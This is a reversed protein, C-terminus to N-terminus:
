LKEREPNTTASKQRIGETMLTETTVPKGKGDLAFPVGHDRLWIRLKSDHGIALKTKLEANSLM